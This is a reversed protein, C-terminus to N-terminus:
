AERKGTISVNTSSGPVDRATKEQLTLLVNPQSVPWGYPSISTFLKNMEILSVHFKLERGSLKGARIVMGTPIHLACEPKIQQAAYDNQYIPFSTFKNVARM